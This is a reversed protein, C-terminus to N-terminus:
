AANEVPATQSLAQKNPADDLWIPDRLLLVVIPILLLMGYFGGGFALVANDPKYILASLYSFTQNNLAHLYAVLWISGTKLMAYGLIFALATTYATMMLIGLVPQGPYNHGMLIVPYHWVSWILGVLLVGRKKGLRTLQGQLFSRWGYEEGFAIPVSLLPAVLVTQVASLLIFTGTSMTSMGSQAAFVSIDVPQGLKFLANLATSLTYFGVFALGYLMWDRAKGGVLGARAFAERSSFGRLGLLVLLALISLSSGIASFIAGQAPMIVALIALAVYALTFLLYFYFFWRPRETFSRYYVPSEKFFFSEWCSPQSPQYLCKFSCFFCPSHIAAM